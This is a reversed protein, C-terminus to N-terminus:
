LDLSISGLKQGRRNLVYLTLPRNAYASDNLKFLLLGGQSEGESQITDQGPYTIEYKLTEAQWVFPNLAPNLRIPYYTNGQTDVIKFHNSTRYARHHQNKAWMFVGYWFQNPTPPPFGAPLGQVYPKDQVSYPNLERSVQLQYTIPGAQIYSGDNIENGVEHGSLQAPQTTAQKVNSSGCAAVACAVVLACALIGLRRLRVNV